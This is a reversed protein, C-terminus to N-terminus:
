GKRRKEGKPGPNGTPGQPGPVPIYGVSPEITVGTSQAVQAAYSSKKSGPFDMSKSVSM